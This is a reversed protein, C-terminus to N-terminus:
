FTPHKSLWKMESDFYRKCTARGIKFHDAVKQFIDQPKPKQRRLEIVRKTVQYRLGLENRLQAIKRKKHPKGLVEDWSVAKAMAIDHLAKALAEVAWQPVPKQPRSSLCVDLVHLFAHKQGGDFQLEFAAMEADHDRPARQRRTRATGSM